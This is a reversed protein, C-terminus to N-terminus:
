SNRLTISIGQVNAIQRKVIENLRAIAPEPKGDSVHREIQKEITSFQLIVAQVQTQQEVTLGVAAEKLEALMRRLESHRDLSNEWAKQRHLRIVEEMVSLAASFNALAGQKLIKEKAQRAALEAQQAAKKATTVSRITIWFGVLSVLLGLVSAANGIQDFLDSIRKLIEM